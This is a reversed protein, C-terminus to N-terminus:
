DATNIPRGSQWLLVAVQSKSDKLQRVLEGLVQYLLRSVRIAEANPIQSRYVVARVIQLRGVTM